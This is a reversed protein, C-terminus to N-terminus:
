FSVLGTKQLVDVLDQDNSDLQPQLVVSFCQLIEKLEQVTEASVITKAFFLYYTEAGVGRFIHTICFFQKIKNDSCFKELASGQDFLLSFQKLNIGALEATQYFHEYLLAGEIPLISVGLPVLSNSVIASPICLVCQKIATFTGDLAICAIKATQVIEPAEPAIWVLSDIALEESALLVSKAAASNQEHSLWARFYGKCNKLIELENTLQVDVM